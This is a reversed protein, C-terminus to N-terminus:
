MTSFYAKIKYLGSNYRNETLYASGLELQNLESENYKVIWPENYSCHLLPPPFLVIELVQAYFRWDYNENEFGKQYNEVEPIFFLFSPSTFIFFVSRGNSQWKRGERRERPLTRDYRLAWLFPKQKVKSKPACIAVAM